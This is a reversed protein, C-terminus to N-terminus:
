GGGRRQLLLRPLQRAEPARLGLALLWFVAGGLVVGGGGIWWISAERTSGMWLTLALGMALSALATAALGRRVSHFELRGLRRRM